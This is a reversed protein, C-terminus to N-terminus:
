SEVIRKLGDLMTQWNKESHVRAEDTANNDQGLMVRTHKGEAKLEVTVTHYNEPQDAVGALPSFHTYKLLHPPQVQLLTGKDEFPKGKWEGRWLIANGERWDRSSGPESCTSRSPRRASSPRGSM